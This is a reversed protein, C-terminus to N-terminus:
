VEAAAAAQLKARLYSEVQQQDDGDMADWEFFPVSVVADCRGRGVLLRRRLQTPGLALYPTNTTFHTPGDVEVGVKRGGVHVMIDVSFLGDETLAELECDFGMTCLAAHVQRQLRSATTDTASAQWSARAAELVPAPLCSNHHSPPGPPHGQPASEQEAMPQLFALHCQFLQCRADSTLEPLCDELPAAFTALTASDLSGMVSLSWLSQSLDQPKFSGMSGMAAQAVADLLQPARHGLTAYAWVLNSLGQPKFSGMSGMAAQAVADLLQPASHGLTAYAWVLNSLDQPNFSGMSGMAAQAVADLLQPASHGLTAYAWVLNSLGQPKFSGISGM